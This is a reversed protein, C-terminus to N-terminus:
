SNGGIRHKRYEEGNGGVWYKRYEEADLLVRSQDTVTIEPM